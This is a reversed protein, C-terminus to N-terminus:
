DELDTYLTGIVISRIQEEDVREAARNNDGRTTVYGSTTLYDGEVRHVITSDDEEFAIIDVQDIDMTENDYEKKLITHGHFITPRMSKGVIKAISDVDNVKLSNGDREISVDHNNSQIYNNQYNESLNVYASPTALNQGPLAFFPNTISLLAGLLIAGTIAGYIYSTIHNM